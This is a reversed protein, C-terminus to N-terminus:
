LRDWDQGFGFEALDPRGEKRGIWVCVGGRHNSRSPSQTIYSTTAPARSVRNKRNTSCTTGRNAAYCRPGGFASTLHNQIVFSISVVLFILAKNPLYM